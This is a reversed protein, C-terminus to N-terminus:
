NEEILQALEEKAEDAESLLQENNAQLKENEQIIKKTPLINNEEGTDATTVDETVVEEDSNANVSEDFIQNNFQLSDAENNLEKLSGELM